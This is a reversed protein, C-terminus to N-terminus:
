EELASQVEEVTFGLRHLRCNEDEMYAMQYREAPLDSMAPNDLVYHLDDTIGPEESPLESVKMWKLRDDLLAQWVPKWQEPPFEARVNEYDQKVNLYKPFGDM